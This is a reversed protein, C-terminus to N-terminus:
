QLLRAKAKNYEDQTILGKSYMEALRELEDSISRAASSASQNIASSKPEPEAPDIGSERAQQAEPTNLASKRVNISYWNFKRNRSVELNITNYYPHCVVETGTFTNNELTLPINSDMVNMGTSNIKTGDFVIWGKGSTHWSEGLHLVNRGNKVIIKETKGDDIQAALRGSEGYVAEDNKAYDLVVALPRTGGKWTIIIESEGSGPIANQNNAPVLREGNTQPLSGCSATLLIVATIISVGCIRMYVGKM